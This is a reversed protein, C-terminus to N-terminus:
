SAFLAVHRETGAGARIRGGPLSQFDRFTDLFHEWEARRTPEVEVLARAVRRWTAKISPEAAAGPRIANGLFAARGVHRSRSRGHPLGLNCSDIPSPALRDTIKIDANGGLRALCDDLTEDGVLLDRFDDGLARGTRCNAQAAAQLDVEPHNRLLTETRRKVM